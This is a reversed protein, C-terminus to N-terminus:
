EGQIKEGLDEVDEGFGQTTQCGMCLLVMFGTALILLLFKKPLTKMLTNQNSTSELLAVVFQLRTPRCTLNVYYGM